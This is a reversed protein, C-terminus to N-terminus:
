VVSKRDLIRMGHAKARRAMAITAFLDNTGGGYPEGAATYPDVWLRLRALNMGSAAMLAVPDTVIGGDSFVGGREEVEALMGLDGGMILEGGAARAQEAPGIAGLGFGAAVLGATGLVVTRRTPKRIADNSFTM